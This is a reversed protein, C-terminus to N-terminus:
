GMEACTARPQHYGILHLVRVESVGGVTSSPVYALMNGENGGLVARVRAMVLTRVFLEEFEAMDPGTLAGHKRDTHCTFGRISAVNKITLSVLRNTSRDM